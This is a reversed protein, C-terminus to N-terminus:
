VAVAYHKCWKAYDMAGDDGGPASVKGMQVAQALYRFADAGHSAWDHEPTTAYVPNDEQSLREVKRWKYECLAKLGESCTSEDFWCRPLLQRAAEIGDELRTRPIVDFNIGLASATQRRTDGTGMERAEIDHPAFHRGYIWGHSLRKDDLAKAFHALGEGSREYYDIIHCEQGVLQVFWIATCDGVGLDWATHVLAASNPPIRCIRGSRRAAIMEKGYIAGETVEPIEGLVRSRYFNSNEGYNERCQREFVRGALGPIVERGEIYNPTDFVSATIQKYGSDPKFCAPFHGFASTPNGIVLLHADGSALLGEAADWIQPLIGAAEDLIVLVHKNHYGQFATAQQTVV